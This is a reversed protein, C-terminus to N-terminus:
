RALLEVLARGLARRGPKGLKALLVIILARERPSQSARLAVELPGVTCRGIQLVVSAARAAVELDDDLHRVLRGIAEGVAAVDRDLADSPTADTRSKGITLRRM